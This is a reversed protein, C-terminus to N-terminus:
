EVPSVPSDQLKEPQYRVAITVARGRSVPSQPQIDAGGQALYGNDIAWAVADEAFQSVQSGDAVGALVEDTDVDMDSGAVKAYRALMTAFQEVTITDAPGFNGDEYGTVIGLRSAWALAQAFYENGKIDGFQSLYETEEPGATWNEDQVEGGAMRYLIVVMDARSVSANPAFLNSGGMGEVYGQNVATYVYPAYYETSPVDVFVKQDSVNFKSSEYSGTFNDTANGDVHASVVYYGMDKVSDADKYDAVDDASTGYSKSYVYTLDYLESDLTTWVPEENEDETLAVEVIPTIDSGTYPVFTKESSGDKYTIATPFTVRTPCDSDSLDFPVIKFSITEKDGKTAFEYKDSTVTVTYVGADVASDVEKGGKTVAVEYDSGEELVKGDPGKVQIGLRDLADQGSYFQDAIPNTDNVVKGDFTFITSATGIVGAKVKVTVAIRSTKVNFGLEAPVAEIILTYTGKVGIADVENGEADLITYSYQGPELDQEKANEDEYTGALKSLDLSKLTWGTSAFDDKAQSADVTITQKDVLAEDDYFFKAVSAKENVCSVTIEAAGTVRANVDDADEKASLTFTYEGAGSAIWTKNPKFDFNESTLYDGLKKVDDGKIADVGPASDGLTVDEVYLDLTSLDLKGVTLDYKVEQKDYDGIGTIVVEYTGPQIGGGSLDGTVDNKAYVAFKAEDADLAEGDLVVKLSSWLQGWEYTIQDTYEGDGLDKMLKAGELSDSTITFAVSPADYNIKDTNINGEYVVAIYDGTTFEAVKAGFASSQCIYKYWKGDIQRDGGDKRATEKFYMTNMEVDRTEADEGDLTVSTIKIFNNDKAYEALDSKKVTVAENGSVKKNGITYSTVTGANFADADTAAMLGAGDVALAMVPAAGLTLAGALAAVVAGRAKNRCATM